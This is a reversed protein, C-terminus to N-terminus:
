LETPIKNIDGEDMEKELWGIGKETIEYARGVGGEEVVRVYGHAVLLNLHRQRYCTLEYHRDPLQEHDGPMANFTEKIENFTFHSPDLDEYIQRLMKLAQTFDKKEKDELGDVGTLPYKWKKREPGPVPRGENIM